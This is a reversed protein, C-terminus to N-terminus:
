SSDSERSQQALVHWKPRWSKRFAEEGAEVVCRGRENGDLFLVFEFQAEPRGFEEDFARAFENAPVVKHGAIERLPLRLGPRGDRAEYSKLVLESCVLTSDRAFDFAFDYPRGVFHLARAIAAAKALAPLRPRLVALGDCAVSGEFSRLVVGTALAEIVRVPAGDEAEISAEEYAAPEWVALAAELSTGGEGGKRIWSRVGPDQALWEREAPTGVFLAAHTWFGPLGLNTFAWERRQLLIDGPLL